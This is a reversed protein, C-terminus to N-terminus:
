HVAARAALLTPATAAPLSEQFSSFSSPFCLIHILHFTPRTPCLPWQRSASTLPTPHNSPLDTDSGIWTHTRLHWTRPLHSLRTRRAVPSTRPPRSSPHTHTLRHHHPNALATPHHHHHHHIHIGQDSARYLDRTSAWFGRRSPVSCDVRAHMWVTSLGSLWFPLFRPPAPNSAEPPARRTEAGTQGSLVGYTGDNTDNDRGDWAVFSCCVGCRASRWM